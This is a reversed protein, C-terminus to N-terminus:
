KIVLNNRGPFLEFPSDGEHEDDEKDKARWTYVGPSLEAVDNKSAGAELGGSLLNGTNEEGSLSLEVIEVDLSNYVNLRALDGEPECSGVPVVLAIVLVFLISKKM